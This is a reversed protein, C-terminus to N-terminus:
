RGSASALGLREQHPRWAAHARDLAAEFAFPDPVNGDAVPRWAELYALFSAKAEADLFEADDRLRDLRRHLEERRRPKALDPRDYLARALKETAQLDDLFGAPAGGGAFAQIAGAAVVLVLGLGALAKVGAGAPRTGRDPGLVAMVLAGGLLGGLHALHAVHPVLFLLASLVLFMLVTGRAARAAPHSSRFAWVGLAGVVGFVGGSAGVLIAMEDAADKTMAQNALAGALVAVVFVIGLRASGIVTELLRGVVFFVWTNFLVHLVFGHLFAYTLLRQLDGMEVLAPRAAGLRLLVDQSPAGWYLWSGSPHSVSGTLVLALAHVGLWVLALSWVVPTARRRPETNM